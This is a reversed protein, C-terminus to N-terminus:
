SFRNLFKRPDLIEIGFPKRLELLDKDGTVIFEANAALACALFMDDKSDRSRQKGLPAPEFFKAKARMWEIQGSSRIGTRVTMLAALAAYEELIEATVALQFKKRAWLLLCQRPTGGFFIASLVVNTDFVVRM